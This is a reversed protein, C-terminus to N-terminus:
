PDVPYPGQVEYTEKSRLRYASRDSILGEQAIKTVLIFQGEPMSEDVWTSKGSPRNLFLFIFTIWDKTMFCQHRNAYFQTFFYM